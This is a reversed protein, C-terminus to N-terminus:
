ETPETSPAFGYYAIVDTIEKGIYKILVFTDCEEEAYDYDGETYYKCAVIDSISTSTPQIKSRAVNMTYINATSPITVRDGTEANFSNSLTFVSGSKAVVYGGIYSFPANETKKTAITATNAKVEQWTLVDTQSLGCFKADNIEGKENVTYEFLAGRKFMSNEPNNIPSDAGVNLTLTEGNQLFTVSNVKYGEENITNTAREVIAVADEGMIKTKETIILIEANNEADINLYAVSYRGGSVLEDIDIVEYESINKDIPTYFIATSASIHYDGLMNTESNYEQMSTEAVYSLGANEGKASFTIETIKGIANAKYSIIRKAFDETSKESSVLKTIYEAVTSKEVKETGEVLAGDSIEKVTGNEKVTLSDAFNYIVCSGDSNLLEIEYETEGYSIYDRIATIFSVKVVEKEPYKVPFGNAPNFTQIGNEETGEFETYDSVPKINSLSEWVNIKLRDPKNECVMLVLKDTFDVQFLKRGVVNQNNYANVLMYKGNTATPAVYDMFLTNNTEYIDATFVNESTSEGTAPIIVTGGGSPRGSTEAFSVITGFFSTLVLIICMIVAFLKKTM